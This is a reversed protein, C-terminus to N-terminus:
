EGSATLVREIRRDPIIWILAVLVYIGSSLWPSALALPIATECIWMRCRLGNGLFRPSISYLNLFMRTGSILLPWSM